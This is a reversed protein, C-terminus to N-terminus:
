GAASGTAPRILAHSCRTHICARAAPSGGGIAAVSASACAMESLIMSMRMEVRRV